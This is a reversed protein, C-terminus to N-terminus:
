RTLRSVEDREFRPWEAPRGGEHAEVGRGDPGVEGIHTIEVGARAVALALAGAEAPRCTILLSGSGILGMPDIGMIACIRQTQPYVPIAALDVRLRRGGAAGLESVATALGGETVDHLATVGAFGMAVRAEPLISLKDLFAAAEAIEAATMGAAVLRGPFERAILGTGEVAVRKTLLIHDGACMGRKDLLRGAPATGAMTGSILPRTVADTVETHGGCLSIGWPHCADHLDRVMAAVQSPTSGVPFLLTTLLWRPLAGSTAVDNANVLVAYCAASDSTLTIPDSALVLVDDESVDVAAADEGLRASVLVSPDDTVIGGLSEELLDAPLKGAPLPLGYRIIRAAQRLDSVTFDAPPVPDAERVDNQLFMTMTGAARGAEIDFSHDGILLVDRPDLRLESLVYLVGDPQPKPDLALDRTVILAFDDPGIGPLCDLAVEVPGRRNRTIVAMPIGRGRLLAVLEPAGANVRGNAAAASEAEELVAAKRRREEPDTVGELYEILGMGPPCGVSSRITAFDLDGPHTLTGDFDFLVAAVRFPSGDPLFPPTRTTM